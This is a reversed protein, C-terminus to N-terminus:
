EQEAEKEYKAAVKAVEQTEEDAIRKAEEEEALRADDKDQKRESLGEEIAKSIATTIVAISKYADDNAPIPYDVLDPNSNTDCM